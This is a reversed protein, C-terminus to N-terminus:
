YRLCDLNWAYLRFLVRAIIVPRLIDFSWTSPIESHTVELCSIHKCSAFYHDELAITKGRALIWKWKTEFSKFPPRGTKGMDCRPFFTYNNIMHSNCYFWSRFLEIQLISSLYCEPFSSDYLSLKFFRLCFYSWTATNIFSYWCGWYMEFLISISRSFNNLHNHLDIVGITFCINGCNNNSNM